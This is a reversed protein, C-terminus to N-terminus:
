REYLEDRNFQYDEPLRFSHKDVLNLFKEKRPLMRDDELILIKVKKGEMVTGLKEDLVLDGNHCTAQLFKYM